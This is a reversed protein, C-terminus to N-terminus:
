RSGSGSARSRARIAARVTELDGGPGVIALDHAHPVPRQRHFAHLEMRLRDQGLVAVIQEGIEQLEVSSEVRSSSAMVGCSARFRRISLRSIKWSSISETIRWIMPPSIVGACIAPMRCRGARSSPSWQRSRRRRAPSARIRSWPAPPRGRAGAPRCRRCRAAVGCVGEVDGGRRRQDRGRRPRLHRLVAPAGHGALGAAGIHQLREAHLEFRAGSCTARQMSSTPMPKMNAGLKWPAIFCAAGTRRSSPTRVMKLM